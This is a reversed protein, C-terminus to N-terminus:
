RQELHNKQEASNRTVLKHHAETQTELKARIGSGAHAGLENAYRHKSQTGDAANTQAHKNNVQGGIPGFSREWDDLSESTTSEEIYGNALHNWTLLSTPM